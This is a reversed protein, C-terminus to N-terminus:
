TATVGTLPHTRRKFLVPTSVRVRDPTRLHMLLMFVYGLAHAFSRMNTSWTLSVPLRFPGLCSDGHTGADQESSVPSRDNLLCLPVSYAFSDSLRVFSGTRRTLLLSQSPLPGGAVDGVAPRPGGYPFLQELDIVLFAPSLFRSLTAHLSGVRGMVSEPLPHAADGFGTVDHARCLSPRLPCVSVRVYRSSRPVTNKPPTPTAPSLHCPGQASFFPGLKFEAPAQPQWVTLPSPTGPVPTSAM